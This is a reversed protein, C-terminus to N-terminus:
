SECFLGGVSEWLPGTANEFDKHCQTANSLTAIIMASFEMIGESDLRSPKIVLLKSNNCCLTVHCSITHTSPPPPWSM